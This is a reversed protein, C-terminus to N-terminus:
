ILLSVDQQITQGLGNSGVYVGDNPLKQFHCCGLLYGVVYVAQESSRSSPLEWNRPFGHIEIDNNSLPESSINSMKILIYHNGPHLYSNHLYTTAVHPRILLESEAFRHNLSCVRKESNTLFDMRANSANDSNYQEYWIKLPVLRVHNYLLM